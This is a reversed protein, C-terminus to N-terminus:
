EPNIRKIQQTVYEKQWNNKFDFWKQRYDGSNDILFKFERFPRKKQLSDFLKNQLNKDKLLGAFESMMEFAQNSTWKEIEIYELFNNDLEELEEDWSDLDIDSYNNNDPVFLIKGSKQHVFVRFGCDLQEAIEKIINTTSSNM